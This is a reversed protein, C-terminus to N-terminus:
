VHARGIEGTVLVDCLVALAAAVLYSGTLLQGLYASLAMLGGVAAGVVPFYAMSGLMDASGCPLAINIPIRSMIQFALLMRRLQALLRDAM